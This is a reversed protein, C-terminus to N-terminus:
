RVPWAIRQVRCGSPPILAAVLAGIDATVNIERVDCGAERLAEACQHGSDLSVERESSTGGMLVAIQNHTRATM